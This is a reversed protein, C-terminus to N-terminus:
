QKVMTIRYTSPRNQNPSWEYMDMRIWYTGPQLTVTGIEPNALTERALLSGNNAPNRVYADIDSADTWGGSFAYTGAETVELKILDRFDDDTLSGYFTDGPRMVKPTAITEDPEQTDAAQPNTVTFSGVAAVQNPGINSVEYNVTGSTGFPIVFSRSTGTTAGVTYTTVVTSGVLLRVQTDADFPIAGQTFTVTNVTGTPVGTTGQTVTGSFTGARVVLRLTDARVAGTTTRTTVVIRGTGPARASTIGTAPDVVAVLTDLASWTYNAATFGTVAQGAANRFQVALQATLGSGLTDAGTVRVSAPVVRIVATDTLGGGRVVVCSEGLTVGRVWFREPEEFASRTPDAFAAVKGDCPEATVAAGIPAGHQNMVIATVRTSDGANVVAVAPNVMFYSGEDRGESLPDDNCATVTALVLLAGSFARVAKQM